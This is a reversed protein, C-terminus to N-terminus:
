WRRRWREQTHAPGGPRGAAEFSISPGGECFCDSEAYICQGVYMTSYYTSTFLRGMFVRRMCQTANGGLGCVRGSALNREWACQEALVLMFLPIPPSPVARGKPTGSDGGQVCLRSTATASTFTNTTQWGPVVVNNSNSKREVFHKELHANRVCLLLLLLM